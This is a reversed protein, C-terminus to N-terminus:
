NEEKLRQRVVQSLNEKKNSSHGCTDLGEEPCSSISKGIRIDGERRRKKIGVKGREGEGERVTEERAKLEPTKEKVSDLDKM